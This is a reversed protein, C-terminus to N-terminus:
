TAKKEVKVFHPFFNDLGTKWQCTAKSILNNLIPAVIISFVLMTIPIEKKHRKIHLKLNLM